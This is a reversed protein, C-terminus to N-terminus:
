KAAPTAKPGGGGLIILKTYGQFRLWVDHKTPSSEYAKFQVRLDKILNANRRLLVILAKRDTSGAM